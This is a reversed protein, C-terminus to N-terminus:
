YFHEAVDLGLDILLDVCSLLEDLLVHLVLAVDLFLLLCEGDLLLEGEGLELGHGVGGGRVADLCDYLLGELHVVNVGCLQQDLVLVPALQDSIQADRGGFHGLLGPLRVLAKGPVDHEYDVQKELVAKQLPADRLLVVPLQDVAVELRLLRDGEDVLIERFLVRRDDLILESILCDNFVLPHEPHLPHRKRPYCDRQTLILQEYVAQLLREAPWIEDLAPVGPDIHQPNVFGFYHLTQPRKVRIVHETEISIVVFPYERPVM